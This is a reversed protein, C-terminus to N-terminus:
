DDRVLQTIQEALDTPALSDPLATTAEGGPRHAWLLYEQNGHTGVLASRALGLIRLGAARVADSVVTLALARVQPDRVVGGRGVRDPGVEFQPKVLLVAHGGVALQGAIAPLVSSLSIFSLDAVVLDFPEGLEGPRVHRINLGSRETVRADSAVLDVLQGTGVDLAVVDTAGYRLLVQTFGGTSAGVDLCRDPVRLGRDQWARLARDLKVAGRGVWMPAASVEVADAPGIRAAPKVAVEGNVQVLGAEILARARGRTAARGTGVLHVDLRETPESPVM